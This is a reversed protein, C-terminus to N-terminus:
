PKDQPEPLPRYMLPAPIPWWDHADAVFFSTGIWVCVCPGHYGACVAQFHTGDKPANEGSHWGLEALRFRCDVMMRICDQETPLKEARAQKEIEALRLITQVDTM